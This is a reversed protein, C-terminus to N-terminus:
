EEALEWSHVETLEYAMVQGTFGKLNLAPLPTATVSDGLRERTAQDIVVQGPAAQSCLRSALNVREGLM